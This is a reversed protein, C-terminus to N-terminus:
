PRHANPDVGTVDYVLVEAPTDDLALACVYGGGADIGRVAFSREQGWGPEPRVKGDAPPVTFTDLALSLGQGLAKVVAEKKTWCAFFGQPDCASAGDVLEAQERPSFFRRAIATCDFDARVREIDIGIELRAAVAVVARDASRSFSFRIPADVTPKQNHAQHITLDGPRTHMYQALVTRLVGRGACFRRRDREFVFAAARDLEDVSLYRHLAVTPAADLRARWVHVVGDAIM